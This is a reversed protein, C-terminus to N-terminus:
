ADSWEPLLEFADEYIRKKWYSFTLKSYDYEIEKIECLAYELVEKSLISWDEVILMPLDRFFNTLISHKVIPVTGMYLSEWTRHCDIGNGPPSLVFDHEYVNKIYDHFSVGHNKWTCWDFQKAHETVFDREYHNNNANHNMYVLNQRNRDCKLRDALIAPDSSYGMGLPREMGSPIPVLNHAACAVNLAYWKVINVPKKMYRNQDIPYDSNHTILIYLHTKKIERIFEFLENLFDTKCFIICPRSLIYEKQYITLGRDVVVDAVSRFRDGNIVEALFNFKYM